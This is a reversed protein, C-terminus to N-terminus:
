PHPTAFSWEQTQRPRARWRRRWGGMPTPGRRRQGLGAEHPQSPAGPPSKRFSPQLGTEVAPEVGLHERIRALLIPEPIEAAESMARMFEAFAAAFEGVPLVQDSV